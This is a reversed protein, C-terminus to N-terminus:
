RLFNPVGEGLEHARRFITQVQRLSGVNQHNQRLLLEHPFGGASLPEVKPRSGLAGQSIQAQREKISEGKCLIRGFESKETTAAPFSAPPMLTSCCM